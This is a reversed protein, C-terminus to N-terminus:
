KPNGRILLITYIHCLNSYLILLFVQLVLFSLGVPKLNGGAGFPWAVYIIVCYLRINYKNYEVISFFDIGRFKVSDVHLYVNIDVASNFSINILVRYFM